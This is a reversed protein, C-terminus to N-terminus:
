VEECVNGAESDQKKKRCEAEKHGKKGCYRCNGNFKKTGTTNSSPTELKKEPCDVGKHGYKGCKRSMGKFQTSILADEAGSRSDKSSESDSDSFASKRHGNKCLNTSTLDELRM